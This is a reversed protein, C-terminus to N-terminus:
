SQSRQDQAPKQAVAELDLFAYSKETVTVSSHGLLACVEDLTRGDRQIWRCGATRRLDHFQVDKLGARRVAGEFAKVLRVYRRGDDHCLVYPGSIHRPWQALKQALRPSLPVFRVRGSKTRKTTRIVRASADVQDWTLSMIEQDRLGTEIAILVATLCPEGCQAILAAEEAESLYRTRADAERLGRRRAKRLFASVCNGGEEIWEWEECYSMVLSLCVLDRRITPASAGEARRMTVFDSLLAPRVQQITRGDMVKSLNKLSVAYRKASAPKVTPFHERMFRAWVDAWARPPKDGWAVAEMDELWRQLRKEAVRRDRTGLSQRFERGQRQARGWWVAGRKYIGAM